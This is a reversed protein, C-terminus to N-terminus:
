RRSYEAKIPDKYVVPGSKLAIQFSYWYDANPDPLADIHQAKGETVTTVGGGKGALNFSVTVPRTTRAIKIYKYEAEPFDWKVTAIDDTRTISVKYKDEQRAYNAAGAKDINVKIPGIEQFKGDDKILRLWYWHAYEDPLSDQFSSASPELEAVKRQSKMDSLSRMINIQRPKVDSLVAADIHWKLVVHQGNRVATFNNKADSPISKATAAVPARKGKQGAKEQPEKSCAAIFAVGALATTIILFLKKHTINM